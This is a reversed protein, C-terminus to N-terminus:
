NANSGYFESRVDVMSRTQRLLNRNRKAMKENNCIFQRCIEPRVEYISCTRNDNNRFPCTMDYAPKALPLLHRCEKIGHKEIYKHIAAVEKKSMPLLKTCCNGCSSCKGDKTFDHINDEIGNQIAESLSVVVGM